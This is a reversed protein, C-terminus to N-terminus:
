RSLKEILEDATSGDEPYTVIVCELEPRIGASEKSLVERLHELGRNLMAPSDSKLAQPFMFYIQSGDKGSQRDESGVAVAMDGRRRLTEKASDELKKSLLPWQRREFANLFASLNKIWVRAIVMSSEDHAAEKVHDM